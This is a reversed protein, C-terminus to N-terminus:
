SHGLSPTKRNRTSLASPRMQPYLSLFVIRVNDIFQEMASAQNRPLYGTKPTEKNEVQYRGIGRVSEILRRELYKIHGKTLNNDKNTFVVADTWFRTGRAHHTLRKLMEETEGIYVQGPDGGEGRSLLFYVGSRDVEESWDKVEPLRTRPFAIAQGTWHMIEAHRLGTPTGDALFITVTKSYAM